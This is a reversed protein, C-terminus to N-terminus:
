KWFQIAKMIPGTDPLVDKIAGLLPINFGIGGGDMTSSNLEADIFQARQQNWDDTGQSDQDPDLIKELCKVYDRINDSELAGLGNYIEQELPTLEAPKEVM